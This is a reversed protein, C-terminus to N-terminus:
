LASESMDAVGALHHRKREHWPLKEHAEEPAADSCEVVVDAVRDGFQKRIVEATAAGGQDEVADHLLAAIVEDEDGGDEMVLAAVAVLHSVYPITTGKRPQDRHLRAALTLADGVRSSYHQLAEIM